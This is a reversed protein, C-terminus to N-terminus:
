DYYDEKRCCCKVFGICVLISSVGVIFPLIFHPFTKNNDNFYESSVILLGTLGIIYIIFIVIICEILKKLTFLSILMCTYIDRENPCSNTTKDKFYKVRGRPKMINKCNKMTKPFIKTICKEEKWNEQRCVPCKNIQGEECLKTICSTCIKTNSCIKCRIGCHKEEM